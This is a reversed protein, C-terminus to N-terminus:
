GGARGESESIVRIFTERALRIDEETPARGAYRVREHVAVLAALEASWPAAAFRAALERPTFSRLFERPHRSDLERALRRYLRTVTERGDVGEGLLDAAAAAEAPTPAPPLEVVPEPPPGRARAPAVDTGRRRRLYLVAGLGAFGLGGLYFLPALTDVLSPVELVVPRSVTWNLPEEDPYFWATLNQRGPELNTANVRFLGDEGTTGDNWWWEDVDVEVLADRVPVKDETELIGLCSATWNPALLWGENRLSAVLRITTNREDITFPVDDSIAAGASAYAAHGGAAIREVRYPFRFRGDTGTVVGALPRGDAFITVETGAPAAVTGLMELVDGYRGRDPVVEFTIPPLAGAARAAAQIERVEGPVAASRADQQGVLEKVIEWFDLVSQEYAATDRDYAESLNVVRDRRDAYGQYNELLATRLDEGRLQVARLNAADGTERYQVELTELRGFEETQNLLERLSQMNEFNLGNFEGVDTGTADLRFVLGSLSRGSRLYAELSAAAADLDGLKIDLVVPGTANLSSAWEPLVLAGDERSLGGTVRVDEHYPTRASDAADYLLAQGAFVLLLALVIPVLAFAALRGRRVTGAAERLAAISRRGSRGPSKM